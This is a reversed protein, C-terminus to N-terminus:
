ALRAHLSLVSQVIVERLPAGNININCAECTAPCRWKSRNRHNERIIFRPAAMSLYNTILTAMAVSQCDGSKDVFVINVIGERQLNFDAFERCRSAQQDLISTLESSMKRIKEIHYGVHKPAADDLPVGSVDLVLNPDDRVGRKPLISNLIELQVLRM